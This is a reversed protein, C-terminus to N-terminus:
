CCTYAGPPAAGEEPDPLESAALAAGDLLDHESAEIEDLGYVDLVELLIAAGAVIVPARDPELGPVRRREDPTLAALRELQVAVGSRPIRHGHVRVPDYEVLGLDLAAIATVTGAVGIAQSVSLAPLAERVAAAVSRVDEGYRETLRVCGIDLSRHFAVGDPGGLILETSGGGIDVVVTGEAIERGVSVGRFTLLAEEDGDLLRTSFGYSWEVEGLFAEGNDADRVASTAVALVREAGLQEAARRYDVLTNRVRAIATPLLIRRRDVDEGLRTIALRREVEQVRGDEVDAVLLRTSNTGLDVAAVRTM